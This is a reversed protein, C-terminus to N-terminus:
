VPPGGPKMLWYQPSKDSREPASCGGGRRRHRCATMRQSIHVGQGVRAILDNVRVHGTREVSVGAPIMSGDCPRHQPIQGGVRVPISGSQQRATGEGQRSSASLRAPIWAISGSPRTRDPRISTTGEDNLGYITLCGAEPDMELAVDSLWDEDEGLMAAVRAITFVASPTAM